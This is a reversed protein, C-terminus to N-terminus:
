SSPVFKLLSMASLDNGLKIPSSHSIELVPYQPYAIKLNEHVSIICRLKQARSFGGFWTCNVGIEEFFPYTSKAIFVSKQAM